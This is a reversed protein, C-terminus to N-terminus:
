ETAKVDIFLYDHYSLNYMYQYDHYTLYTSISEFDRSEICIYRFRYREHDVGQLVELEVGEVDLSLFDISRPANAANLVDQLTSARATFKYPKGRWFKQGASVHDYPFPIDSKVNLATTMLDSFLLEITPKQYKFSVCASNSLFNNSGRNKLLKKFLLPSPEILVGKWNLRRELFLTNSYSVGDNAGLEVYFGNEHLLLKSMSKDIEDLSFFKFGFIKSFLSNASIAVIIKRICYRIV